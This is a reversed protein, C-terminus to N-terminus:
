SSSTRGLSAIDSVATGHRCVVDAVVNIYALWGRLGGLIMQLWSRTRRMQARDALIGLMIFLPIAL